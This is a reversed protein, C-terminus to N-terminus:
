QPEGVRYHLHITGNAFRDEALLELNLRVEGPLWYTGGGVIVPNLFQHIEDVLGAQIASGALTAGGISLDKDAASKLARVTAPDFAGEIRTRATSVTQLTSSYVVKEAARWLNAFDKIVYPEDATDWTDWVKLVEYMRRGYLYTGITREQDNVFAHVEEDPASWDFDGNEDNIFGDLSTIASYILKAM